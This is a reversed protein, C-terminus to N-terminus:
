KAPKVEIPVSILARQDDLMYRLEYSGPTTPLTLRAPNGFRTSVYDVYDGGVPAIHIVDEAPNPGTFAIEITTGAVASAPATLTATGETVTIPQTVLATRDRLMYRLEYEGPELPMNLKAPNAFRTAVYNIYDGGPRAIHIYDEQPNPGEFAIEITTGVVATDPATMRAEAPLVKIPLTAMTQRDRFRYRLEYDGPESPATLELTAGNRTYAFDLYGGGPAAIEINDGAANAGQWTVEFDSGAITEAPATIGWTIPTIDIMEMAITESDRLRYRIEYQGPDAPMILSIPNGERTYAFDLYGGGTVAIEVNDLGENPGIWAIEQTSGAPASAPATLAASPTPSEFVFVVDRAMEPVLAIQQTQEEEAAVHYATITYADPTIAVNAPNHELSETVDPGVIDFVVPTDIIPGDADDMVARLTLQVNAPPEPAAAVITELATKLEDANDATLFRGGTEDAICQMQLLAEAEGAVDFGVVHATFDIGTEAMMRAAACPDPNCTEIGDSVLIVTAAQETYRMAEAAAIVADTMPTMGRPNLNNVLEVIEDATGPAPVVLTEIDTCEGRQRHGYTVLGLNQDAPFDSLIDSVVERAIVIKNVGDIQGWMSGSADLVLITSPKVSADDQAHTLNAFLTFIFSLLVLCHRM